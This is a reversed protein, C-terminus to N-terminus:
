VEYNIKMAQQLLVNIIDIQMEANLRNGDKEVIILEEFQEQNECIAAEVLIQYGNILEQKYLNPTMVQVGVGFKDGDNGLKWGQYVSMRVIYFYRVYSITLFVRLDTYDIDIDIDQTDKQLTTVTRELLLSTGQTRITAIGGGALVDREDKIRQELPLFGAMEKDLYSSGPSSQAIDGVIGILGCAQEFGNAFVSANDLITIFASNHIGSKTTLNTVTDDVGVICFSDLRDTAKFNDTLATDILTLNANDTYPQAILNYQNEELNPIVFNELDPDGTGGVMPILAWTIGLPTVDDINYNVKIKLTNGYTGKHVATLTLTGTTDTATVQSATDAAILAALATAIDENTDGLVVPVKYTKENIYLAFTGNATATGNITLTGTAEAGAVLDDLAIVKLKNVSKNNDKYRAVAHALMSDEGFKAKAEAKSFIDLVTETPATGSDTKQGIILATYEQAIVGSNLINRALEAQVFPINMNFIETFNIAM